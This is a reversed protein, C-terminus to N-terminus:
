LSQDSDIVLSAVVTDNEAPHWDGVHVFIGFANQIADQTDKKDCVAPSEETDVTCARVPVGGEFLVDPETGDLYTKATHWGTLMTKTM